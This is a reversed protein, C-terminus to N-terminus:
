QVFETDQLIKDKMQAKEIIKAHDAEIKEALPWYIKDFLRIKAGDVCFEKDLTKYKDNKELQMMFDDCIQSKKDQERFINLFKKLTKVINEESSNLLTKTADKGLCSYHYYDNTPSWGEIDIANPNRENNSMVIDYDKKATESEFRKAISKWKASNKFKSIDLRATFNINNNCNINNM